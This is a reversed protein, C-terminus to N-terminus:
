RYGRQMDRLWSDMRRERERREGDSEGGSTERQRRRQRHYEVVRKIEEERKKRMYEARSHIQDGKCITGFGYVPRGLTQLAFVVDLSTLTKRDAHTVLPIAQSLIQTENSEHPKHHSALDTCPQSSSPTALPVSSGVYRAYDPLSSLRFPM